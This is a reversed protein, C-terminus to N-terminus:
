KVRHLGFDTLTINPFATGVKCLVSQTAELLIQWKVISRFATGTQESYYIFYM